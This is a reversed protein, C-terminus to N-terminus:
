WPTPTRRNKLPDWRLVSIAIGIVVTLGCEDLGKNAQSQTPKLVCEGVGVVAKSPLM